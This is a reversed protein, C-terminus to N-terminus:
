SRNTLKNLLQANNLGFTKSKEAYARKAPGLQLRVQVLKRELKLEERLLRKLKRELPEVPAAPATEVIKLAPKVMKPM